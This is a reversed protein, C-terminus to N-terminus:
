QMVWDTHINSYYYLKGNNGLGIINGNRDATVGIIEIPKKPVLDAIEESSTDDSDMQKNRGTNKPM